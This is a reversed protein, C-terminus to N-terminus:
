SNNKFFHIFRKYGFETKIGDLEAKILQYLEPDVLFFEANTVLLIFSEMTLKLDYNTILRTKREVLRKGSLHIYKVGKGERETLLISLRRNNGKVYVEALNTTKNNELLKEHVLQIEAEIGGDFVGSEMHAAIYNNSYFTYLRDRILALFKNQLDPDSLEFVISKTNYHWAYIGACMNHLHLTRFHEWNQDPFAVVKHEFYEEIKLSCLACNHSKDCVVNRGTLKVKEM